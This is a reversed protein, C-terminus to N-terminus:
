RRARDHLGSNDGLLMELNAIVADLTPPVRSESRGLGSLGLTVLCEQLPRLDLERFALYHNRRPSFFM